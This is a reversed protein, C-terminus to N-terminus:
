ESNTLQRRIALKQRLREFVIAGDVFEGKQAAEVGIAIEHKLEEFRGQYILEQNMLLKIGENIAEEFSDYKGSEVKERLFQELDPNLHIEM